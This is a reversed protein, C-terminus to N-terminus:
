IFKKYLKVYIWHHIQSSFNNSIFSWFNQRSFGEMFEGVVGEIGPLHLEKVALDIISFNVFFRRCRKFM